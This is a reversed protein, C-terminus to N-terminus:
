AGSPRNYQVRFHTPSYTTAPMFLPWDSFDSQGKGKTYVGELRTQLEIHSRVFNIALSERGEFLKVILNIAHHMRLSPSVIQIGKVVNESAAKAGRVFSERDPPLMVTSGHLPKAIRFGNTLESQPQLSAVWGIAFRHCRM